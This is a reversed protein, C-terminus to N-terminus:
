LLIELIKPNQAQHPHQPGAYVKLKKLMSDGLRTQPLMRKVALNIVKEPTKELMTKLPIYKLGDAYGSYRKYTKQILKKGTVKIKEANTVIIFDGTDVYPTYIPHHKGMLITALRTALKGLIKNSADVVYWQPKMLEKKALITKNNDTQM